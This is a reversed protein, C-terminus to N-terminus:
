DTKLCNQQQRSKISVSGNHWLEYESLDIESNWSVGYGGAEVKVAKFLAPNKLPKFVEHDLWRTIDYKKVEGNDFKVLLHKDSIAKVSIIKPYKMLEGKVDSDILHFQKRNLPM